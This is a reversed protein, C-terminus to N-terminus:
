LGGSRPASGDARQWTSPNCRRDSASARMIAPDPGTSSGSNHAGIMGVDRYHRGTGRFTPSAPQDRRPPRCLL